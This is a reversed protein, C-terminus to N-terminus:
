AALGLKSRARTEPRFNRRPERAWKEVDAKRYWVWWGTRECRPGLGVHRLQRLCHDSTGILDAAESTTLLQPKGM